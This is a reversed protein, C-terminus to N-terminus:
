LKVNFVELGVAKALAREAKAGLSKRWGPLLAVADAHRCIWACDLAFVKRRFALSEQLDPAKALKRECGKAAPNFVTYGQKKLLKEGRRFMPKNFEPIGRMPGALYVKM